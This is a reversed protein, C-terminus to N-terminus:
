SQAAAPDNFISTCIIKQFICDSGSESKTVAENWAEDNTGLVYAVVEAYKAIANPDVGGGIVASRTTTADKYSSYAGAKNLSSEFYPGFLPSSKIMATAIEPIVGGLGARITSSVAEAPRTLHWFIWKRWSPNQRLLRPLHAKWEETNLNKGSLNLDIITGWRSNPDRSGIALGDSLSKILEESSLSELLVEDMVHPFTSLNKMSSALNGLLLPDAAVMRDVEGWVGEYFSAKPPASTNILQYISGGTQVANTVLGMISWRTEIDAAILKKLLNDLNNVSLTGTNLLAQRLNSSSSNAAVFAVEKLWLRDIGMVYDILPARSESRKSATKLLSLLSSDTGTSAWNLVLRDADTSSFNLTALVKKLALALQVDGRALDAAVVVGVDNSSLYETMATTLIKSDLGHNKLAAKTLRDEGTLQALYVDTDLAEVNAATVTPLDTASLHTGIFLGLLLFIRNM